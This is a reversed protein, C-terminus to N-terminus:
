LSANVSFAKSCVDYTYPMQRTHIKQHVSLSANISFAKGCVDCKYPKEGTHVRIFELNQSELIAVAVNIHNRDLIFERIIKFTHIRNLATAM